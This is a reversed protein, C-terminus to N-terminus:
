KKKNLNSEKEEKVKNLERVRFEVREKISYSSDDLIDNVHTKGMIINWYRRFLKGQLPKTFYDALMLDTPCYEM